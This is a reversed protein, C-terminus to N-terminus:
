RSFVPTLRDFSKRCCSMSRDILALERVLVAHYLRLLLDLHLHIAASGINTVRVMHSLRQPKVLVTERRNLLREGGM